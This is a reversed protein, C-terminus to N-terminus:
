FSGLPFLGAAAWSIILANLTIGTTPSGKKLGFWWSYICTLILLPTIALLFEVLFGAFTPLIRSGLVLAGYQIIIISVLGGTKALIFDKLNQSMKEFFLQESAFHLYFFPILSPFVIFRQIPSFARFLPVVIKLNIGTLIEIGFSILYMVLFITSGSILGDIDLLERLNGLIERNKRTLYLYALGGLGWLALWLAMGSGFILPPFPIISGVLVSPFFLLLGGGAYITLMRFDPIVEELEHNPGKIIYSLPLALGTFAILSITQSIERFHYTPNYGEDLKDDEEILATEFWRVTERVIEPTVPELLHITKPTIIKRATGNGFSGRTSGIVIGDPFAPQIKELLTENEILIDFQGVAVLLNEPLSYSFERYSSNINEDGIGGGILATARVDGVFAVYRAAGAGLSHGAVGIKESNINGKSRFYDVASKMGLSPDGSGFTGGSGGHGILDVSLAAIGRKSLELAIGTMTEKSNSIGHALVIGPLPQTSSKPLYLVAKLHTEGYPISLEEVEIQGNSDNLVGAGIISIILISVLLISFLARRPNM